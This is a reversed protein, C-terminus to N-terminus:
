QVSYTQTVKLFDKGNRKDQWIFNEVFGNKDYTFLFIDGYELKAIYGNSDYEFKQILTDKVTEPNEFNYYYESLITITTLKENENYSYKKVSKEEVKEDLWSWETYIEKRKRDMKNYFLETQSVLFWEDKKFKYSSEKLINGKKDFERIIKGNGSLPINFYEETESNDSYQFNSRFSEELTDDVWYNVKSQIRDLSDRIIEDMLYPKWRYYNSGLAASSDVNESYQIEKILKHNNNYVYEWKMKSDIISDSDSEFRWWIRAERKTILNNKNIHSISEMLLGHESEKYGDLYVTSYIKINQNNKIYCSNLKDISYVILEYRHTIREVFHLIDDYCIERKQTTTQCSLFFLSIFFSVVIKM